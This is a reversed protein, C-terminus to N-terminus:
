SFWGTGSKPRDGAARPMFYSTIYPMNTPVAKVTAAIESIKNKLFGLTIYSNKAYKM